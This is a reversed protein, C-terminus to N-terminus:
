ESHAACDSNTSLKKHSNLSQSGGVKHILRSLQCLSKLAIRAKEVFVRIPQSPYECQCCIGVLLVASKRNISHTLKTGDLVSKWENVNVKWAQDIQNRRAFLCKCASCITWQFEVKLGM